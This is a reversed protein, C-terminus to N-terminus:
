QTAIEVLQQQVGEQASTHTATNYIDWQVLTRIQTYAPRPATMQVTITTEAGPALPTSLATQGSALNTNDTLMWHWTLAVRNAPWTTTSTNRVTVPVPVTDGPRMTAPMWPSLYPTDPPTSTYTIMLTPPEGPDGTGLVYAWPAHTRTSDPKTTFLARDQSTEDALKLLLGHDSAPSTPWNRVIATADLDSLNPAEGPTPLGLGELKSYDGGPKTWATQTAANTWTAETPTFAHSMAHLTYQANVGTHGSLRLRADTVFASPPLPLPGFNFAARTTGLGNPDNGVELGPISQGGSIIHDITSTPQATSLTTSAIAPIAITTRGTQPLQVLRTPGPILKGSKTQVAVMYFCVGPPANAPTPTATADVFTTQHADLQAILNTASPTFSSNTPERYVQYEVLDDAPNGTTNVYHPWSLEAGTPHIVSPQNIEVPTTPPPSPTPSPISPMPAAPQTSPGVTPSATPSSLGLHIGTVIATYGALALLWVGIMALVKAAAPFPKRALAVNTLAAGGALGGGIAGVFPVSVLPGLALVKQWWPLGRALYQFGSRPTLARERIASAEDPQSDWTSEGGGDPISLAHRVLPIDERIVAIVHREANTYLLFYALLHATFRLGRPATTPALDFDGQFTLVKSGSRNRWVVPRGKGLHLYGYMGPRLAPLVCAVKLTVGHEYDAIDHISDFRKLKLARLWKSLRSKTGAAYRGPQKM